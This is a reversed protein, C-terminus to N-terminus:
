DDRLFIGALDTPENLARCPDAPWSMLDPYGHNRFGDWDEGSSFMQQCRPCHASRHARTRVSHGCALRVIREGSSLNLIDANLSSILIDTEIISELPTRFKRM